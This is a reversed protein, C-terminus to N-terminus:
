KYLISFEFINLIVISSIVLYIIYSVIGYFREKDKIRIHKQMKEGGPFILINNNTLPKYRRYCM